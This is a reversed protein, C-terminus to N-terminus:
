TASAWRRRRRRAELMWWALKRQPGERVLHEEIERDFGPRPHPLPLYLRHREQGRQPRARLAQLLRLETPSCPWRASARQGQKWVIADKFPLAHRLRHRHTQRHAGAHPQRTRTDILQGDVIYNGQEDTYFIENGSRVEYLGPIPEQRGRRDESLQAPAGRPEQPHGGGRSPQPVARPRHFPRRPPAPLPKLSGLARATLWRKIPHSPQRSGARPQPLERAAPAEHFSSCCGTPSAAWRGPPCARARVYRRLLEDSLAALPERSEVVRTLAAVDALGLNLGQSALPHVLHAADGLLVWGPRELREGANIAM